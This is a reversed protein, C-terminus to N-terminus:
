KISGWLKEGRLPFHSPAQSFRRKFARSFNHSHSYGVSEAVARISLREEALLARARQLRQERVYDFISM